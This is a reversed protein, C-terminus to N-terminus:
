HAHIVMRMWPHICCEWKSDGLPIEPSNAIPGNRVAGASIFINTASAPKVCEPAVQTNQSLQNLVGLVGGGFHAVRTFTHTEGGRNRLVLQQGSAMNLTARRLIDDSTNLVPNFRWAGAIHDKQLEDLFVGLVTTGHQGAVCTGAGFQANFTAPDCADWIRVTVTSAAASATSEDATQAQAIASMCLCVALAAIAYFPRLEGKTTM